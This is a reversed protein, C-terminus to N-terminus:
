QALAAPLIFQHMIVFPQKQKVINQSGQNSGTFVAVLELSPAVFIFQGGNGWSHTVAVKTGEIDFSTTYWQSSYHSTTPPHDAITDTWPWNVSYTTNFLRGIGQESVVREGNWIGKNLVMLGIKALDAPLFYSNGQGNLFRGDMSKTLRYNTISLPSFLYKDAFKFIDPKGARNLASSITAALMFSNASCYHWEKAPETAMPINLSYKLPTPGEDVGWEHSPGGSNPAEDCAIGSSMDLLNEVLIQSRRVDIEDSETFEELLPLATQELSILNQDVAILALLGTISKFSSHTRHLTDADFRGYYKETILQNNKYVLMSDIKTFDGQQIHEDAKQLLSLDMSNASIHCLFYSLLLLCTKRM